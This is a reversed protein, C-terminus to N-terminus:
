KKERKNGGGEGKRIGGGGMAVKEEGVGVRRGRGDKEENEM